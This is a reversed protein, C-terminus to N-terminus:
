RLGSLCASLYFIQRESLGGSVQYLDRVYDGLHPLGERAQPQVQLAFLVGRRFATAYHAFALGRRHHARGISLPEALHADLEDLTAFLADFAEQSPAFGARYVGNNICDYVRTNFSNIEARLEAPFFDVTPEFTDFAGNPMEIIEASENNVITLTHTDFLM